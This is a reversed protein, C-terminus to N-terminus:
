SIELYNIEKHSSEKRSPNYKKYKQTARMLCKATTGTSLRSVLVLTINHNWHIALVLCPVLTILCFHQGNTQCIERVVPRM